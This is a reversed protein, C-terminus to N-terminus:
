SPRGGVEIIGPASRRARELEARAAMTAADASALAQAGAEIGGSTERAPAALGYKERYKAELQQDADLQQQLQALWLAQKQEPTKEVAQPRVIGRLTRVWSPTHQNLPGTFTWTDEDTPQWEKFPNSITFGCATLVAFSATWAIAHTLFYSRWNAKNQERRADEEVLLREAIARPSEGEDFSGIDPLSSDLAASPTSSPSPSSAPTSAAAPTSTSTAAFTLRHATHYQHMRPTTCRTHLAPAICRRSSAVATHTTALSRMATPASMQRTRLSLM